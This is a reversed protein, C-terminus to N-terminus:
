ETQSQSYNPRGIQYTVDRQNASTEKNIAVRFQEGVVVSADGTSRWSGLSTLLPKWHGIETRHARSWSYHIVKAETRTIEIESTWSISRPRTKLGGNQCRPGLVDCPWKSPTWTTACIACTQPLNNRRRSTLQDKYIRCQTKQTSSLM